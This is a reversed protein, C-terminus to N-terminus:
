PEHNPLCSPASKHPLSPADCIHHQITARSARTVSQQSGQVEMNVAELSVAKMAQVQRILGSPGQVSQTGTVRYVSRIADSSQSGQGPGRLTAFSRLGDAITPISHDAMVTETTQAKESLEVRKGVQSDYWM